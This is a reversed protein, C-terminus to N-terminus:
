GSWFSGGLRVLRGAEGSGSGPRMKCSASAHGRHDPSCEGARQGPKGSRQRHVDGLTRPAPGCAIARRFGGGTRVVRAVPLFAVFVPVGVLEGGLHQRTDGSKAQVFALERQDRRGHMEAEAGRDTGDIRHQHGSAVGAGAAAQPQAGRYPEARVLDGHREV